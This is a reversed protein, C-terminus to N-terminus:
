SRFTGPELWAKRNYKKQHNPWDDSQSLIALLNDIFYLKSLIVIINGEHSVFYTLNCLDPISVILYWM